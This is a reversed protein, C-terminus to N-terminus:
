SVKNYKESNNRSDIKILVDFFGVLNESAKSAEKFSLDKNQEEKVIKQLEIALEKSVTM